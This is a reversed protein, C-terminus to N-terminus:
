EEGLFIHDINFFDPTEIIEMPPKNPFEWLMGFQWSEFANKVNLIFNTMHASSTNRLKSALGDKRVLNMHMMAIQDALFMYFGDRNGHIRRTPDVLAPFHDNAIIKSSKDIRTFFCVCTTDPFKSRYIPRKIHLYTPAATTLIKKKIIFRKAERLANTQYYEDADLTAFYNVHASKAAEMGINRKALENAQPTLSLNPIYEIVEDILGDRKAASVAQYLQETAEEGFNSRYQVVVNIYEIEERHVKLSPIFHEEGNFLNYSAGFKL